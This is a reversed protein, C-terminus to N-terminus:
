RRASRARARGPCGRRRGRALGRRRLGLADARRQGDAREPQQRHRDRQQLQPDEVRHLVRARGREDLSPMTATRTGSSSSTGVRTSGRVDDGTQHQDGAEGVHGAPDEPVDREAAAQARQAGRSVSRASSRIAAADAAPPRAAQSTTCPVPFRNPAPVAPDSAVTTMPVTTVPATARAPRTTARTGSTASGRAATLARIPRPSPGARSAAGVGPRECRCGACSLPDVTDIVDVVM